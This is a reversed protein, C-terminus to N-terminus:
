DFLKVLKHQVRGIALFYSGSPLDSLDIRLSNIGVEFDVTLKRVVQGCMDSLIVMETEAIATEYKINVPGYGIPNPAAMIIRKQTRLEDYCNAQLAVIQSYTSTGDFDVQNLRYYNMREINHDTYQYQSTQDTSGVGEITAITTWNVGDNSKEVDFGQNNLESATTWTVIAKCDKETANFSSLTVPLVASITVTVTAVSFGGNGDTITYSFTDDGSFGSPPTYDIFDDAYNSPTGNDNISVIGGNDSPGSKDVDNAYFLQIQDGDPDNDASGTNLVDIIIAIDQSTTTADDNAVPEQNSAGTGVAVPTSCDGGPGRFVGTGQCIQDASAGGSYSLKNSSTNTGISTGGSGCLTTNTGDIHVDDDVEVCINELINTSNGQFKFDDSVFIESGDHAWFLSTGTIRLDKDPSFTLELEGFVHFEGGDFVLGDSSDGCDVMLFGGYEILINGKHTYASGTLTITDGSQIIITDNQTPTAVGGWTSATNWDGSQASTFVTAKTEEIGLFLLLCCLFFQLLNKMM